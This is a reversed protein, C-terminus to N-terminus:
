VSGGLGACQQSTQWQGAYNQGRSCKMQKLELKLYLDRHGLTLLWSTILATNTIVLCLHPLCCQQCQVTRFACMCCYYVAFLYQGSKINVVTLYCIWTSFFDAAHIKTGLIIETWTKWSQEENNIDQDGAGPWMACLWWWGDGTGPASSCWGSFTAIFTRLLNWLIQLIRRIAGKLAEM